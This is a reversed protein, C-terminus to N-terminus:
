KVLDLTTRELGGRAQQAARLAEFSLYAEQLRQLGALLDLRGTDRSYTRLPGFSGDSPQGVLPAVGRPAEFHTADFRSGQTGAPFRALAVRGLAVREVRREGSRPDIATRAYSVTGDSEVREDSIRGLARDIADLTLPHPEAREGQATGLVAAGDHARLTGDAFTFGGDRSYRTAGGREVLFYTNEPAVVSLPDQSRELSAPQGAADARQPEFGSTYGALVDSARTAIRDLADSTAASIM